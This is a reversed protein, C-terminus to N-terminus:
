KLQYRYSENIRNLFASARCGESAGGGFYPSGNRKSTTSIITTFNGSDPSDPGCVFSSPKMGRRYKLERPASNRRSKGNSYCGQGNCFRVPSVTSRRIRVRPMRPTACMLMRENSSLPSPSPSPTLSSVDVSLSSRESSVWPIMSGTASLRTILLSTSNSKRSGRRSPFANEKTM